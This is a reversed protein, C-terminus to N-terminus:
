LCRLKSKKSYRPPKVKGGAIGLAHVVNKRIKRKACVTAYHLAKQLKTTNKKIYPRQRRKKTQVPTTRSFRKKETQTFFPADYGHDQVYTYTADYSSHLRSRSLNYLKIRRGRYTNKRSKNKTRRRAM